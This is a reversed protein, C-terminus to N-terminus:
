NKSAKVVSGVMSRLWSVPMWQLFRVLLHFQWPFAIMPKARALGRKIIQVAQDLELMFPMKFKNRGTLPTKVFGPCIVSVRIGLPYLRGYLAEGYLRIAGKSASYAPSHSLGRFGALSSMLAIQGAKRERMRPLLPHITNLVGQLNIDFIKQLMAVDFGRGTDSIGANAIVLDIPQAQDCALIWDALEANATVDIPKIIVTAGLARCEDAVAELRVEDRGTLALYVEDAAYAKALGAGLGSSAGTILISQPQIM